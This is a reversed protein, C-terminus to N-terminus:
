TGIEYGSHKFRLNGIRLMLNHPISEPAKHEETKANPASKGPNRNCACQIPQKNTDKRFDEGQERKYPNEQAKTKQFNMRNKRIM